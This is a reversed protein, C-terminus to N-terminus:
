KNLDGESMFFLPTDMLVPCGEKLKQLYAMCLEAVTEKLSQSLSPSLCGYKELLTIVEKVDKANKIEQLLDSRM